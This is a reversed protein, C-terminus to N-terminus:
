RHAIETNFRALDLIAERYKAIVLNEDFEDIAKRRGNMGMTAREAPTLAMFRKMAGVLDRTDRPRCTYGNEGDDVIDRCGIQDTAIIPKGLAAAELLVRPVGERYYTPLVICDADSMYDKVKDTFGLYAVAGEAEWEDMQERSIASPNQVDLSGLLRLEARAGERKLMRAAEVFEGVGKEWLMRSALLFVFRGPNGGGEVPQFLSVDIGSGPVRDTKEGAVLKLDVFLSLDEQNQFFVKRPYRLAAKYMLKLIAAVIRNGEFASGLGAVNSISPIGRVRAAISGYINPKPTFHLVLDPRLKGYLRYLRYLLLIEKLPNMGKGEMKIDHFRYPIRESYADRPAIVEIGHGEAELARLLGLRFNYVNWSANLVIVIKM